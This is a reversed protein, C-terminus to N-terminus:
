IFSKFNHGDISNCRSREGATIGCRTCCVNGAFSQYNHGDISICNIQQGIKVGCRTCYVNGTFSQFNHGDINNCRSREGAMIGCHTCYVNGTFSQYDHGDISICNIQQGIKVGCRICYVHTSSSIPTDKPKKLVSPTSEITPNNMQHLELVVKRIGKAVDLFAEDRNTWTTIPKSDTPLAQLKGFPSSHWDVPRLIIPIVRAIKLEHLEMARKMEIDYCYDSSLFDASILLLIIRATNIHNDIEGQWEKGGSIMRFKWDSIIGQRKLLSLHKELEKQLNGDDKAYSYFMFIPHTASTLSVEPLTKKSISVAKIASEDKDHKDEVPWFNNVEDVMSQLTAQANDLGRNFAHNFDSQPTSDSFIWLSYSIKNFDKLSTSDNGFVRTIIVEVDRKWKTFDPSFNPKSRVGDIRDILSQLHKIAEVKDM